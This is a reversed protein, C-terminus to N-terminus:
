PQGRRIRLVAPGAVRKATEWKKGTPKTFAWDVPLARMQQVIRKAQRTSVGGDVLSYGSPLHVVDCRGKLCRFQLAFPWYIDGVDHVTRPARGLSVLLHAFGAHSGDSLKKLQANM